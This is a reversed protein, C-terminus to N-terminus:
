EMPGNSITLGCFAYAPQIEGVHVKWKYDYVKKYSTKKTWQLACLAPACQNDFVPKNIVQNSVQSMWVCHCARDFLFHPVPYKLSKTCCLLDQALMTHMGHPAITNLNPLQTSTQWYCACGGSVFWSTCYCALTLWLLGLSLLADKEASKRRRHCVGKLLFILCCWTSCWWCVSDMLMWYRGCASVSPARFVAIFSPEGGSCAACGPVRLESTQLILEVLFCNLFDILYCRDKSKLHQAQECSM